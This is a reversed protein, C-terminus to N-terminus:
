KGVEGSVNGKMKWIFRKWKFRKDFNIELFVLQFVDRYELMGLFSGIGLGM